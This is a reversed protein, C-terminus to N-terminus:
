SCSWALYRLIWKSLFIRYRQDAQRGVVAESSTPRVISRFICILSTCWSLPQWAQTMNIAKLWGRRDNPRFSATSKCCKCAYKPYETVRRYLKPPEYVLTETKDTDIMAMPGHKPCVREQEPVDCLQKVEPLHAPLSESRKKKPKPKPKSEDDDLLKMHKLRPRRGLKSWSKRPISRCGPSGGPSLHKERKKHMAAIMSALKQYETEFWKLKSQLQENEKRLLEVASLSAQSDTNHSTADQMSSSVCSGCFHSMFFMSFSHLFQFIKSEPNHRQNESSALSYMSDSVANSTLFDIGTLLMSLQAHDIMLSKANGQVIPKQISGSELRKMFIALWRPGVLHDQNSRPTSQYVHLLRRPSHRSRIRVPCHCSPRRVITAHRCGAHLPLSSHYFRRCAYIM